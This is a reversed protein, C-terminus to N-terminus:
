HVVSPPDIDGLDALIDKLALRLSRTSSARGAGVRFFMIVVENGTLGLLQRVDTQVQRLVVTSKETLGNTAGERLQQLLFAIGAYPQFQLGLTTAHLWVREMARGGLVYDEPRSGAVIIAGLGASARCHQEAKRGIMGALGFYNLLNVLPWCRLSPFALRDAKGLGLTAIDLGDRTRGAEAMTWRVQEFLFQHLPRNAFVLWDNKAAVAALQDQASREASLVIRAGPYGEACAVLTQQQAVGLEGGEFRGRNTCRKDIAKVLPERSHARAVLHVQAVLDPHTSEPFLSVEASFGEEAAVLTLNELLAGHAVLSARQKYNYLSQDRGPVNYLDITHGRVSFRWPQCNDGSPAMIAYELVTKIRPDM